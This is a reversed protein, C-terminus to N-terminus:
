IQFGNEIFSSTINQWGCWYCRKSCAGRMSTYKNKSGFPTNNNWKIELAHKADKGTEPWDPSHYTLCLSHTSVPFNGRSVASGVVQGQVLGRAFGPKPDFTIAETPNPELMSTCALTCLRECQMVEQAGPQSFSFQLYHIWCLNNSVKAPIVCAKSGRWIHLWHPITQSCLKGGYGVTSDFELDQPCRINRLSM